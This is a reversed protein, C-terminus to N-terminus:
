YPRFMASLPDEFPPVIALTICFRTTRVLSFTLWVDDVVCFNDGLVPTLRAPAHPFYFWPFFPPLPRLNPTRTPRGPRARWDARATLCPSFSAKHGFVPRKKVHQLLFGQQMKLLGGDVGKTHSTPLQSCTEPHHQLLISLTTEPRPRQPGVSYHSVAPPSPFDPGRM